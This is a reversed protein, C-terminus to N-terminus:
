ATKPMYRAFPAGALRLRRAAEGPSMGNVVVDYAGPADPSGLSHRSVGGPRVTMAGQSRLQAERQPSRYGGTMRWAGPGFVSDMVAAFQPPAVDQASAPGALLCLALGAKLAIGVKVARDAIKKM